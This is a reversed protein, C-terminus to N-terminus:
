GATGCLKGFGSLVLNLDDVDVVGNLTLDGVALSHGWNALIINLDDVDVLSDGNVDGDCTAPEGEARIVFVTDGGLLAMQDAIELFGPVLNSGVFSWASAIAQGEDIGTFTEAAGCELNRFIIGVYFWDNSDGITVSPVDVTYFNEM